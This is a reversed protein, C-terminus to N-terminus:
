AQNIWIRSRCPCFHTSLQMFGRNVKIEILEASSASSILSPPHGSVWFLMIGLWYQSARSHVTWQQRRDINERRLFDRESNWWWHAQHNELKVVTSVFKLAAKALLLATHLQYLPAPTPLPVHFFSYGETILISPKASAIPSMTRRWWCTVILAIGKHSYQSIYFRVEVDVFNLM